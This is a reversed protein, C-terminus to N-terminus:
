SGQLWIRVPVGKSHEAPFDFDHLYIEVSNDAKLIRYEGKAKPEGASEFYGLRRLKEALDELRVGAGVYLLYSDSYIKSPFVWKRGEFKETVTDELRKLYWAGFVLGTSTVVLLLVLSVSFFRLKSTVLIAGRFHISQRASRLWFCCFPAAGCRRGTAPECPLRRAAGSIARGPRQARGLDSKQLGRSQARGQPRSGPDRRRAPHRGRGRRQGSRRRDRGRRRIKGPRPKRGDAADAAACHSRARRKGPGRGSSGRINGRGGLRQSRDGKQRASSEHARAQRRPHAGRHDASRGLRQSGQR